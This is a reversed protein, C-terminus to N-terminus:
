EKPLNFNDKKLQGDGRAVFFYPHKKPDFIYGDKGPNMEFVAPFEKSGFPPIDKTSLDTLKGGPHSVLFCRCRFGNKPAYSNWFPDNVPRKIGDLMAHADRVRSDKQTVYELIPFLDQNDVFTNWDRASQAQGVATVYETKLYNKNFEDFIKGALTKFETYEIKEGNRYIMESMMRVQQYQKAASFQFINKKLKQITKFQRTDPVFEDASGRYGQTAGSMLASTTVHHYDQSLNYTTIIGEYVQNLYLDEFEPGFPDNLNPIEM